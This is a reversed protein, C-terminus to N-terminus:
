YIPSLTNSEGCCWGTHYVVVRYLVWLVSGYMYSVVCFWWIVCLVVCYWLIYDYWVGDYM